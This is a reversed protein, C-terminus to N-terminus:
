KKTEKLIIDKTLRWIAYFPLWLWLFKEVWKDMFKNVNGGFVMFDIIMWLILIGLLCLLVIYSIDM